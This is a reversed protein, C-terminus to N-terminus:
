PCLSVRTVPSDVDVIVVESQKHTLHDLCTIPSRCLVEFVDAENLGESSGTKLTSTLICSTMKILLVSSTMM